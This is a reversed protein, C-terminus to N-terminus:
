MVIVPRLGRARPLRPLPASPGHRRSQPARRRGVCRVAPMTKFDGFSKKNIVFNGSEPDKVMLHHTPKGKYVVCVVFEDKKGARTRLFFQNPECGAKNM